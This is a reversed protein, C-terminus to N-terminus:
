ADDSDRGKLKAITKSQRRNEDLLEANVRELRSRESQHVSAQLEMVALRERLDKVERELRELEKDRRASEIQMGDVTEKRATSRRNLVGLVIAFVAALVSFVTGVVTIIKFGDM